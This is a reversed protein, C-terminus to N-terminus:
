VLDLSQIEINKIASNINKLARTLADKHRENTIIISDAPINSLHALELIKNKLESYFEM